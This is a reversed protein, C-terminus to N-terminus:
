KQEPKDTPLAPAASAAQIIEPSVLVMLDRKDVEKRQYSFLAGLLPIHGLVPVRSTVKNSRTDKLGGIVLYEGSNLTVTTSAKRSNLPPVGFISRTYDPESV